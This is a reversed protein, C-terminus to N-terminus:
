EAERTGHVGLLNAEMEVLNAPAIFSVHFTFLPQALAGMESLAVSPPQALGEASTM